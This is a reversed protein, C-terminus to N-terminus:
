VEWRPTRASARGEAQVSHEQERNEETPPVTWGWGCRQLARYKPGVVTECKEGPMPNDSIRNIVEALYIGEPQFMEQCVTPVHDKHTSHILSHIWLLACYHVWAQKLKFRACTNITQIFKASNSLRRLSVKEIQLIPVLGVACPQQPSSFIRLLYKALHSIM